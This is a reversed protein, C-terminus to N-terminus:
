NAYRNLLGPMDLILAIHGDGTITAGALGPLGALMEGLPKIVVEEQGIVQDVVFGVSQNGIRVMIVQGNKDDKPKQEVPPLLWDSLHFLLPAKGRVIIVKRGDVINQPKSDLNFIENVVALPIAFKRVGVQVMLTPLIALTLPVKISITTGKGKESDIEISGNLQSIKTKVVDMGVGRGSIDSIEEKTSSGPMFIIDFCEKDSLRSAVEKDMLGKKVAMERLVDPDMGAGDDKIALLIHDGEQSASLVITGEPPKGIKEREEPMEIGHDVSNRVLHVLPDALSEVLNKDLDTEEGELVLNIKKNLSRAIDRVVRPFRGFVKKIPQMRTKLVATQLDSTVADLNTIAQAVEDNESSSKLTTLRNRTLVLEGVLNMIDDLRKTDVRVSSEQKVLTKKKSASSRPKAPSKAESKKIEPKDAKEPAAKQKQPLDSTPGKGKGHMQDLLKEFEEETINESDVSQEAPKEEKKDRDPASKEQAHSTPGQGQGYLNDLLAEFEEETINDDSNEANVSIEATNQPVGGHKGKGHLQDLIAEFEDETIEDNLSEDVTQANQDPNADAITESVANLLTEFELDTIDGEAEETEEPTNNQVANNQESGTNEQKNENVPKEASLLGAIEDILSQEPHEPTVGEKIEEFMELIVDFGRLIVDMLHEDIGREGNRLANFVDESKHCIEVLSDLGLFGAGGKITHFGRFISNLLDMDDPTTELDVLQENLQELIEGAEVLFDQLIDDDLDISM